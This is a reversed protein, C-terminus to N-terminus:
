NKQRVKGGYPRSCCRAFAADLEVAISEHNVKTTIKKDFLKWKKVSVDSKGSKSPSPHNTFSPEM